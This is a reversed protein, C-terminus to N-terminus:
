KEELIIELNVTQEVHPSARGFARPIWKVIKVGKMAAAHLIYLKKTDLGKYAANAEANKLIELFVKAVKVPYRGAYWGELESRHAVGKKYRRLPLPRKMRIIDQLFRKADELRKGKIERCMEVAYRYSIRLEKGYARAIKDRREEPVKYSYDFEMFIM